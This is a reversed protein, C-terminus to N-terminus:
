IKTRWRAQAEQSTVRLFTELAARHGVDLGARLTEAGGKGVPGRATMQLLLALQQSDNLLGPRASIHLRGQKDPIQYTWEASRRELILDDAARPTSFLGPLFQSWESPTQWYEEQPFADIYTLEWQNVALSGLGAESVFYAFRDFIGEFEQILKRYSPYLGERNRWNLHIRTSQIQLLRAKDRHGVM